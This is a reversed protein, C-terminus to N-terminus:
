HGKLDKVSRGKVLDYILIFWIICPFVAKLAYPEVIKDYISSPTILDTSSLSTFILCLWLLVTYVKRPRQSFYWMAVGTLAICYTPSEARHNFIVIWILISALIQLRFEYLKYLGSKIFPIFFLIAAAVVTGVKSIDIKFWSHIWGIFSAGYSISHDEKLLEQWNQYQQVLENKSILILPLLALVITWFLAYLIFRLKNPYLFWLAFAVIGFLKIYATLVICLAAWFPKKNELCLFSLLILAAILLNTQTSTLSIAIEVLLFLLILKQKKEDLKFRLLAYLFLSVNLLNFLLLGLAAPLYYFIGMFMAFTPSYKFLDYDEKPYAAYLNQNSLLHKFSNKFIVYNNYRTYQEGASVFYCQLSIAVALLLIFLAIHRATIKSYLAKM